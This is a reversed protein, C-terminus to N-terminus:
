ISPPADERQVLPADEIQVLPADERQVLPEAAATVAGPLDTGDKEAAAEPAQGTPFEERVKRLHKSMSKFLFYCAVALALILVLGLPGSKAAEGAAALQYVSSM